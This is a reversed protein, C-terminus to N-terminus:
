EVPLTTGISFWNFGTWARMGQKEINLTINDEWRSTPRRLPRKRKQGFNPANKM